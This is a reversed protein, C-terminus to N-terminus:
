PIVLLGNREQGQKRRVQRAPARRPYPGSARGSVRAPTRM